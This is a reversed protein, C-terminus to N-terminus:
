VVPLGRIGSSIAANSKLLIFNGKRFFLFVFYYCGFFCCFVWLFVIFLDFFEMRCDALNFQTTVVSEFLFIGFRIM